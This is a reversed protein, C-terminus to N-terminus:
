HPIPAFRPLREATAHDIGKDLVERCSEGGPLRRKECHGAGAHHHDLKLGSWSGRDLRGRNGSQGSGSGLGDHVLGALALQRGPHPDRIFLHLAAVQAEDRAPSSDVEVGECEVALGDFSPARAALAPHQM